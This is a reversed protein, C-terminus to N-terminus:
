LMKVESLNEKVGIIKLLYIFDDDSMEEPLNDRVGISVEEVDCHIDRFDEMLDEFLMKCYEAEKLNNPKFGYEAKKRFSRDYLVNDTEFLFCYTIPQEEDGRVQYIAAKIKRDGFIKIKKQFDLISNAETKETGMDKFSVM